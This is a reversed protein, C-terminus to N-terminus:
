FPEDDPSRLIRLIKGDPMRTQYGFAREEHRISEPSRGTTLLAEVEAASLPVTERGVPLANLFPMVKPLITIFDAPLRIGQVQSQRLAKWIRQAVTTADIPQPVLGSMRWTTRYM